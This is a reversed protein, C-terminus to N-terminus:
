CGWGTGLNQPRSFKGRFWVNDVDGYFRPYNCYHTALYDDRELGGRCNLHELCPYPLVAHNRSHCRHLSVCAFLLAVRLWIPYCYDSSDHRWANYIALSIRYCSAFLITPLTFWIVSAWLNHVGVENIGRLPIWFIGWIAGAYICAFKALGHSSFSQM